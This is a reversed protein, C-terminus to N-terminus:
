RGARGFVLLPSCFVCRANWASRQSPAPGPSGARLGPITMSYGASRSCTWTGTRGVTPRVFVPMRLLHQRAPAAVRDPNAYRTSSRGGRDLWMVWAGGV